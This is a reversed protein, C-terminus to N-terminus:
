PADERQEAPSLLRDFLAEFLSQLRLSGAVSLHHADIYMSAGGYEARWLGTKDVFATAPDFVSVNGGTLRDFIANCRKGARVHDAFPVGVRTVDRGLNAAMALQLTPNGYRFEAIDRIIVVRIHADSLKTITRHLDSEFNSEHCYINWRGVLFVIDVRKALAFNIM